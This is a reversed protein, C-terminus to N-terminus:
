KRRKFIAVIAGVVLSTVFTGIGGKVSEGVATRAELGAVQQQLQAEPMNMSEFFEIMATTSEEIYAPFLVTLNLISFLVILVGAVLGLVISNLLQKGYGSDAATTKLALFVCAVTAAIFVVLIVLGFMPNARHLGAAAFAVSVVEVLVALIVAFKIM